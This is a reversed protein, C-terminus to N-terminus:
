TSMTNKILSVVFVLSKLSTNSTLTTEIPDVLIIRLLECLPFCYIAVNWHPSWQSLSQVPILPVQCELLYTTYFVNRKKSIIILWRIKTIVNCNVQIFQWTEWNFIYGNSSVELVYYSLLHGYMSTEDIEVYIM